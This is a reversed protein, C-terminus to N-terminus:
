TDFSLFAWLVVHSIIGHIRRACYYRMQSLYGEDEAAIAVVYHRMWEMTGHMMSPHFGSALLCSFSHIIIAPSAWTHFAFRSVQARSMPLSRIEPRYERDPQVRRRSLLCVESPLSGGKDHTDGPTVAAPLAHYLSTDATPIGERQGITRRLAGSSM